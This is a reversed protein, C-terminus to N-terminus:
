AAIEFRRIVPRRQTTAIAGVCGGGPKFEALTLDGWGPPASALAYGGERSPAILVRNDRWGSGVAKLVAERCTWLRLFHWSREPGTLQELFAREQAGFASRAITLEDRKGTVTEIDIGLSGGRQVGIAVRSNSHSLNFVVDGARVSPREDALQDIAIDSSACDLYAALVHRLLGRAMSFRRTLEGSAMRKARERESADLAEILDGPLRSSDALWVDIGHDTLRAAENLRDLAVHM